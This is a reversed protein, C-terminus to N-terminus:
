TLSGYYSPLWTFIKSKPFESATKGLESVSVTNQITDIQHVVWGLLGDSQDKTFCLLVEKLHFTQNQQVQDWYCWQLIM